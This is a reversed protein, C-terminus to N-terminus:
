CTRHPPCPTSRSLRTTWWALICLLNQPTWRTNAALRASSSVRRAFAPSKGHYGIIEVKTKHSAISLAHYQMRPSRGIDGLVLVHVSTASAPASSPRSYRSPLLLLLIVVGLVASAFTIALVQALISM